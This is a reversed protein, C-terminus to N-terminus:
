DNTLGDFNADVWINLDKNLIVLAVTTFSPIRKSVLICTAMNQRHGIYNLQHLAPAVGGETSSTQRCNGIYIVLISGPSCQIM